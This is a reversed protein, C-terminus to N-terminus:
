NFKSKEVQTCLFDPPQCLLLTTLSQNRATILVSLDQQHTWGIDSVYFQSFGASLLSDQDLHIINTVNGVSLVSIRVHPLEQNVKILFNILLLFVERTFSLFELFVFAILLISVSKLYM